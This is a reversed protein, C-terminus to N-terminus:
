IEAGPNAEMYAAIETYTMNDINVDRPPAGEGGGVSAGKFSETNFLYKTDEGTALSKVQEDLGTVNGDKDLKISDMDLLAKVAKLTKAGSKTLAMEVAANIKLQQVEAKHRDDAAKNDAQLKEIQKKLEENDGASEKLQKLQKDREKLNETLASNENKANDLETKPVYEKIETDYLELVAKAQEDSLGKAILEDKKM